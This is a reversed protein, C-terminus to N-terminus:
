ARAEKVRHQPFRLTVRTGLGVESSIDISGEHASVIERVIGMGLGTGSIGARVASDTRFYPEFVRPLDEPTLGVGDDVIALEVHGDTSTGLAIRIHGGQPTYKVANSLLNDLVQRLRFADGYIVLSQAGEILLEQRSGSILPAYSAASAEVVDRLDVPEFPEQVTRGNQDLISSVLDQMREGANAIIDLQAPVRGPLDDRERLLDVHGVIATLPNRLEHSVVAALARREEDAERLMTVDDIVLLTVDQGGGATAMPQTSVELARWQGNGDFLWM